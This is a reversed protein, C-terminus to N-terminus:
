KEKDRKPLSPLKQTAIRTAEEHDVGIAKLLMISLSQPYDDSRGESLTARLAARVAGVIMDGASALDNFKFRGSRWGAELDPRPYSLLDDNTTEADASLAYVLWGWAENTAASQLM